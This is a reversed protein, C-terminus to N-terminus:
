CSESISHPLPKIQMERREHCNSIILIRLDLDDKRINKHPIMVTFSRDESSGMATVKFVTIICYSHAFFSYFYVLQKDFCGTM